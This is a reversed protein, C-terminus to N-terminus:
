DKLLKRVEQYVEETLHSPICDSQSIVKMAALIAENFGAKKGDDYGREYAGFM